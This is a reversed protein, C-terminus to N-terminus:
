FLDDDDDNLAPLNHKPAYPKINSSPIIPVLEPTKPLPKPDADGSRKEISYRKAHGSNWRPYSRRDAQGWACGCRFVFPGLCEDEGDVVKQRAWIVGQGRCDVCYFTM